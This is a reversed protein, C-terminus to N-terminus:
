HGFQFGFTPMIIWNMSPAVQYAPESKTARTADLYTGPDTFVDSGVFDAWATVGLIVKAGPSPGIVFGADLLMAFNGNSAKARYTSGNTYLNTLSYSQVSYGPTVGLTFRVAGQTLFRLGGGAFGRMTFYTRDVDLQAAAGTGTAVVKRSDLRADVNGVLAAEFGLYGLNYGLRLSAAGGMADGAPCQYTNSDVPCPAAPFATLGHTYHLGLQSYFGEYEPEPAVYPSPSSDHEPVVAIAALVVDQVVAEGAVVDAYRDIRTYGPAEILLAHRGVPLEADYSGVAAAGGDVRVVATAPTVHVRLKGTLPVTELTVEVRAKKLVDVNRPKAAVRDGRAEVTHPGPSVDGEYPAAGVSKGDVFISVPIGALERVVLRGTTVEAVLQATVVTDKMSVVDVDREIPDYGIKAIRLKRAGSDMRWRELPTIGIKVGDAFVDAGAPTVRVDVLATLQRLEELARQIAIKDPAKLESGHVALLKELSTFAAAFEHKERQCQAVNRLASPRQALAYSERFEGLAAGFNKEKLMALGVEFHRRGEAMGPSEAVKAKAASADPPLAALGAVFVLLATPQALRALFLM